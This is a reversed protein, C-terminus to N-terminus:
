YGAWIPLLATVGTEGQGPPLDAYTTNSRPDIDFVIPHLTGFVLVFSAECYLVTMGAAGGITM